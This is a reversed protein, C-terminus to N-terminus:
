KNEILEYNNVSKETMRKIATTKNYSRAFKIDETILISSKFFKEVFTGDQLKIKYTKM